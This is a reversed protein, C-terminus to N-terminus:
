AITLENSVAELLLKEGARTTPRTKVVLVYKKGSNAGVSDPLRFQLTTSTNKFITSEAVSVLASIDPEGGISPAFYIGSGTGEVKLHAGTVNVMCGNSLDASKTGMDCVGKIIPTTADDLTIQDVVLAGVSSKCQKDPSFRVTFGKVDTSTPKKNNSAIGKCAVYLRGLGPIGVANGISLERNVMDALVEWAGALTSPEFGPHTDVARKILTNWQITNRKVTGAFTRKGDQRVFPTTHVQISVKNGQDNREM